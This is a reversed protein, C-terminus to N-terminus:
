FLNQGELCEQRIECLVERGRERERKKKRKKTTSPNSSLVKYRSPEVVQAVGGARKQSPNKRSQTEHVIQRLQDQVQDKQDRGGSYSPNCAHAVLV